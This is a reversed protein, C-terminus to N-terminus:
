EFIIIILEYKRDASVTAVEWVIGSRGFEDGGFFEFAEFGFELNFTNM